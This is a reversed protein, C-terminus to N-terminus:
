QRLFEERTVSLGNSYMITTLRPFLAIHEKMLNEIKTVVEGFPNLSVFHVSQFSSLIISQELICQKFAESNNESIEVDLNKPLPHSQQIAAADEYQNQNAENM